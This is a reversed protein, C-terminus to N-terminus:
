RPTRGADRAPSGAPTRLGRPPAPTIRLVAIWLQALLGGAANLGIDGLGWYRGPTLWQVLEDCAGVLATLLAAAVYVGAGRFHGSLARFALAGLLGYEVLHFAEAVVSLKVMLAVALAPVLLAGALRGPSLRSRRRARYVIGAAAAAVLGAMGWRLGQVGLWERMQKQISNAVPVFALITLTGLAFLSWWLVHRPPEAASPRPSM